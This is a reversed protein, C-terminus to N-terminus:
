YINWGLLGCTDLEGKLETRLWGFQNKVRLDIEECVDLRLLAGALMGPIGTKRPSNTLKGKIQNAKQKGFGGSSKQMMSEPHDSCSLDFNFDFFCDYSSM